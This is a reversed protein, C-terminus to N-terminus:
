FAAVIRGITWFAGLTGIIYAPLLATWAEMRFGLVKLSQWVGLMIAVFGLQGIEVGVNFMLLALPIESRPLGLETLGSAFGFGHLLGFAFAVIWPHDITLSHQGRYSRVIEPGLFLISLAILINLAFLPRAWRGLGALKLLQGEVGGWRGRHFAAVSVIGIVGPARHIALNLACFGGPSHGVVIAKRGDM